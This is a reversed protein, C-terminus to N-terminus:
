YPSPAHILRELRRNETELEGLKSRLREVRRAAELLDERLLDPDIIEPIRIYHEHLRETLTM